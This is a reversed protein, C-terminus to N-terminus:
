KLCLEVEYFEICKDYSVPYEESGYDEIAASCNDCYEEGTRISEAIYYQSNYETFIDYFRMNHEHIDTTWSCLFKIFPEDKPRASIIHYMVYEGFIGRVFIIGCM